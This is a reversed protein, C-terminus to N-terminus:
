NVGERIKIHKMHEPLAIAEDEDDGLLINPNDAITQVAILHLTHSNRKLDSMLAQIISLTEILIDEGTGEVSLELHTGEKERDITGKIQVM